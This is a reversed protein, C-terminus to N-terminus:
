WHVCVCVCECTVSQHLYGEYLGLFIIFVVCNLVSVVCLCVGSLKGGYNGKESIDAFLFLLLVDCAHV